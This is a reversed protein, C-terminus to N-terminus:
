DIITPPSSVVQKWAHMWGTPVECVPVNSRPFKFFTDYRMAFSYFDLISRVRISGDGLVTTFFAHIGKEFFGVLDLLVDENLGNLTDDGRGFNSLSFRLKVDLEKAGESLKSTPKLRYGQRAYKIQYLEKARAHEAWIRGHYIPRGKMYDAVVRETKIVNTKRKRLEDEFLKIAEGLNMVSLM